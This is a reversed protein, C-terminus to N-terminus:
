PPMVKKIGYKMKTTKIAEVPTISSNASPRQAPAPGTSANPLHVSCRPLRLAPSSIPAIGTMPEIISAM